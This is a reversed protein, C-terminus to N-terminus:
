DRQGLLWNSLSTFALALCLLTLMASLFFGLSIYGNYNFDHILIWISTMLFFPSAILALRRIPTNIKAILVKFSNSQKPSFLAQTAAKLSDRSHTGTRTIAVLILPVLLKKDHGTEDEELELSIHTVLARELRDSPSMNRLEHQAMAWCREWRKGMGDLDPFNDDLTNM